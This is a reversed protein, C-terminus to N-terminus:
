MEAPKMLCVMLYFLWTKGFTNRCKIVITRYKGGAPGTVGFCIFFRWTWIFNKIGRRLWRRNVLKESNVIIERDWAYRYVYKMSHNVFCMLVICWVGCNQHCVNLGCVFSRLPPVLEASGTQGDKTVVKVLRFGELVQLSTDVPWVSDKTPLACNSCSVVAICLSLCLSLLSAPNQSGKEILLSM